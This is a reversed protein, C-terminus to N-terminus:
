QVWVGNEDVFYGDPTMENQYMSGFPRVTNGNFRWVSQSHDLTWTAAFPTANFYSWKGDIQKWGTVMAGTAPDLYYWRKDHDDYHWGTMMTGLMGDSVSHMYYWDGSRVDLYWGYRMLGDYDFYFWGSRPQGDVAYPNEIHAWQNNLMLGNSRFFKWRHWEPFDVATAGAPVDEDLPQNVDVNDMHVWQGNVGVTYYYGTDSSDSSVSVPTSGGTTPTDGGTGPDDTGPQDPDTTTDDTEWMLMFPSFALDGKTFFKIGEATKEMKLDVHDQLEAGSIATAVAEAGDYNTERDLDMFHVLKFETDQDTGDPYPWYVYTGTASKVWANGNQTDVLDLFKLQSDYGQAEAQESTMGYAKAFARDELLTIRNDEDKVDDVLLRVHDPDATARDEDGNTFFQVTGDEGPMAAARDSANQAVAEAETDVLERTTDTDNTVERVTLDGSEVKVFYDVDEGTEDDVANIGISNIEANSLSNITVYRDGNDPNKILGTEADVKYNGKGEFAPMAAAKVAIVIKVEHGLGEEDNNVLVYDETAEDAYVYIPKFLTSLSYGLEAGSFSHGNLTVKNINSEIVARNLEEVELELNPLGTTEGEDNSGGFYISTEYPRLTVVREESDPVHDNNEDKAWVASFYNDFAAFDDTVEAGELTDSYDAGGYQWGTVTWGDVSINDMSPAPKYTEGKDLAYWFIAKRGDDSITVSGDDFSTFQAGHDEGDIGTLKFTVRVQADDKVGDNNKDEAWTVYYTYSEEDGQVTAPLSPEWADPIWGDKPTDIVNPPTLTDGAQRTYTAKYPDESAEFYGRDKEDDKIIFNVEIAAKKYEATFTNIGPEANTVNTTGKFADYSLGDVGIWDVFIESDAEVQPAAEFLAEKVNENIFNLLEKDDPHNSYVFDEIEDFDFIDKKNYYYTVTGNAEDHYAGGIITSEDFSADLHNAKDLDFVIQIQEYDPINDSNNDEAWLAYVTKDEGILTVTSVKAEEADEKDAFPQDHLEESWGILVAKDKTLSVEEVDVLTIPEAYDKSYEQQNPVEGRGGNPHYTLKITEEPVNSEFIAYIEIRDDGSSQILENLDVRSYRTGGDNPNGVYWIIDYKTSDLKTDKFIKSEMENLYADCEAQVNEKNVLETLRVHEFEYPNQGIKDPNQYRVDIQIMDKKHVEVRADIHWTPLNQGSRDVTGEIPQYNEDVAGSAITYIEWFTEYTNTSKKEEETLNKYYPSEVNYYKESDITLMPWGEEDYVDQNNSFYPEEGFDILGRWSNAIEGRFGSEYESAPGFPITGKGWYICDEANTSGLATVTPDKAVYFYVPSGVLELSFKEEKTETVYGFFTNSYTHKLAIKEIEEYISKINNSNDNVIKVTLTKKDTNDLEIWSPKSTVNENDNDIIEWSHETDSWFGFDKGVIRDEVRVQLEIVGADAIRAQQKRVGILFSSFHDAEYVIEEAPEFEEVNVDNTEHDVHIIDIKEASESVDEIRKGSFEVSVSGNKAWDNPLVEGDADYLTIDYAYVEEYEELEEESVGEVDEAKIEKIEATTGDPLVGAEAYISITVGNITKKYNFSHSKTEKEEETEDEGLLEEGELEGTLDEDEDIEAEDEVEAFEVDIHTDTMVDKITYRWAGTSENESIPELEESDVTVSAIEYGDESTVSFSLNDGAEIEDKVSISGGDEPTLEYSVSVYVTEDDNGGNGDGEDNENGDDDSADPDKANGPSAADTHEKIEETDEESGEENEVVNETTEVNTTEDTPPVTALASTTSSLLMVMALFMALSRKVIRKM